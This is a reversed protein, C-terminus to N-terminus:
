QAGAEKRECTLELWTDREELNKVGTIDLYHNKYQVRWVTSIGPDYRITIRYQVRDAKQDGAMILRPAPTEVKAPRDARINTPVAERSGGQGDPVLEMQFLGVWERLEDATM